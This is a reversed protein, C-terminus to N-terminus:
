YNSEDRWVSIRWPEATTTRILRFNARGQVPIYDTPSFVVTMTFGRSIDRVLTDGVSVIVENWILDISQATNFLGWTTRMDEDRGWSVDVGQDYNRYIFTFDDALLKGYVLTDKFIYSYRFNEFVGEITMQNTIIPNSGSDDALKPAFPNCAVIVIAAFLLTIILIRNYMLQSFLSDRQL